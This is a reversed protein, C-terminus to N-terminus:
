KLISCGLIIIIHKRGGEWGQFVVYIMLRQKHTTSKNDSKESNLVIEYILLLKIQLDLEM